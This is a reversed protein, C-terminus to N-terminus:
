RKAKAKKKKKAEEHMKTGAPMADGVDIWARARKVIKTLAVFPVDGNVTVTGNRNLQVEASLFGTAEPRWEVVAFSKASHPYEVWVAGGDDEFTFDTRRINM